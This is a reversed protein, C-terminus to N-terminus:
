AKKIQTKQKFFLYIVAIYALMILLRPLSFENDMGVFNRILHGVISDEPPFFNFGFSAISALHFNFQHELLETLGVQVMAAGLIIIMYETIRFVKKIPFKTYAIYALTGFIGSLLLGVLLGLLNQSFQSFLSTSATFLAIEFGERSVLFVITAFLSFDFTEKELKTTVNKIIGKKNESIRNHLSFVVYSIFFGSFLLLYNELLETGNKTLVGRAADGLFYTVSSLGISIIIGVLAAILIETERKLKLKRSLGLFIGVILFAEFFERFAIVLTTLM